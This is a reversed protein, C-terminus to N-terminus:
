SALILRLVVVVIVSLGLAVLFNRVQVLWAMLLYIGAFLLGAVLIAVGLSLEGILLPVNWLAAISVIVVLLPRYIRQNVFYFLVPFAAVVLAVGSSFLLRNDCRGTGANMDSCLTPTFVYRDLLVYLAMTLIGALAGAVIVKVVDRWSMLIAGPQVQDVSKRTSM